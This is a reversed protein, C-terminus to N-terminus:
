NQPGADGQDGPPLLYFGVRQGGAGGVEEGSFHWRGGGKGPSVETEKRWVRGEKQGQGPM